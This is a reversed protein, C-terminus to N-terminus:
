ATVGPRRVLALAVIAVATMTAKGLVQGPLHTLSGEALALFLVSDVVLGVTNSLAMATVLGRHRVPEYVATDLLESLLFAATSALALEPDALWWSLAGGALVAALAVAPGLAERVLDRLVLAIGALFVGAPVTLGPGIPVTGFM